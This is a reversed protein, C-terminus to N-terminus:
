VAHGAHCYTEIVAEYENEDKIGVLFTDTKLLIFASNM